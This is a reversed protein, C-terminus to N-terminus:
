NKRGVFVRYDLVECWAMFTTIRPITKGTEYNHISASNVFIKQAVAYKSWGRKEREKVLKTIHDQYNMSM